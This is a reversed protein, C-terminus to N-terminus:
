PPNARSSSVVSVRSTTSAPQAPPKSDVLIAALLLIAMAVAGEGLLSRRVWGSGATLRPRIVFHHFAGWVLATSVLGLKVLLVQGYGAEWLDSLRPLRLISLYVGAAILAGILVPALRAFRIFADRRLEPAAPWVCVALQVLGGVWLAAASLHVWDAGVSLWSAGSDVASHGSLSLGSALLLALVFCPWLFVRKGTLWALFLLSFVWAFGLTMAIFAEGFRTGSAIPTLDGYLLRGFPLQLADEARLIFAVIGIQIAAIAGIGATVYFRRELQPPIRKPLILLRFGVGGAFLALAAFYLWRIVHEATTPGSAGYAQTPPPANVRVGFTYVGSIVHGDSSIVNWRITYAGKRLRPLPDLVMRADKGNRAQGSVVKGGATYVVIAGPLAKVDQDFSLVVQAPPAQLRQRFGPSEHLLRAHAFASAPWALAALAVAAAARRM